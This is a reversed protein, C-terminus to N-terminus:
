MDIIKLIGDLSNSESGNNTGTTVHAPTTAVSVHYLIAAPVTTTTISTTTVDITTIYSPVCLQKMRSYPPTTQDFEAISSSQHVNGGNDKGKGEKVCNEM